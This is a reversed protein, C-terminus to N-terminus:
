KKDPSLSKDLIADRLEPPVLKEPTWTKPPTSAPDPRPAEKRERGPDVMIETIGNDIITDIQAKSEITFENTLFPHKFWSVPLIVYMGVTLDQVKIKTQM